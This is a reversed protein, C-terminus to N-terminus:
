KGEIAKMKRTVEVFPQGDDLRKLICTTFTAKFDSRASLVGTMNAHVEGFKLNQREIGNTIKFKKM